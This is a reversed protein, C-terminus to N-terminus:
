TARADSRIPFSPIEQCSQKANREPVSDSPLSAVLNAHPDMMTKTEAVKMYTLTGSGMGVYPQDFIANKCIEAM